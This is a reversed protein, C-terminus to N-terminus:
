PKILLKDRCKKPSIKKFYKDGLTKSDVHFCFGELSGKPKVYKIEIDDPRCIKPDVLKSYGTPGKKADIQFCGGDKFKVFNHWRYVTKKPMCTEDRLFKIKIKSGIGNVIKCRGRWDSEDPYWEATTLEDACKEERARNIYLSGRTEQDLEFCAEISGQKALIFIVKEVRCYRISVKRKFKEGNTLSDLEWCQGSYPGTRTFKFLTKEPQCEKINAATVMQGGDKTGAVQLCKGVGEIETWTFKWDSARCKEKTTSAIYVSPGEPSIEYCVGDFGSKNNIWKYGFQKPKCKTTAVVKKYAEGASEKDVEFCRGSKGSANLVFILAVDKTKCKSLGVQKNFNQGNTEEDVLICIPKNREDKMWITKNREPVCHESSAYSSFNNGKTEADVWYCNGGFKGQNPVWHAVPKKPRCKSNTVKTSFITGMTESDVEFCKGKYPKESDQLWRYTTEQSFANFSFLLLCTLALKLM